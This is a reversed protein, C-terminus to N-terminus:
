THSSKHATLKHSMGRFVHLLAFRPPLVPLSNTLLKAHPAGLQKAFIYRCWMTVLPDSTQRWDLPSSSMVSQTNKEVFNQRNKLVIYLIILAEHFLHHFCSLVHTLANRSIQM